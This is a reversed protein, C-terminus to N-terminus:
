APAPEPERKPKRLRGVGAGHERESGRGLGGGEGSWWWWWWWQEMAVGGRGGPVEWAASCGRRATSAGSDHRGSREAQQKDKARRGGVARARREALALMRWGQVYARCWM